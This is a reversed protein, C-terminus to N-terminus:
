KNIKALLCSLCSPWGPLLIWLLRSRKVHSLMSWFMHNHTWLMTDQTLPSIPIGLVPHLYEWPLDTMHFLPSFHSAFSFLFRGHNAPTHYLILNWLSRPNFYLFCNLWSLFSNHNALHSFPLTARSAETNTHVTTLHTRSGSMKVLIEERACKYEKHKWM